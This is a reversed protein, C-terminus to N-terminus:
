KSTLRRRVWDALGIIHLPRYPQNPERALQRWVWAIMAVATIVWTILENKPSM